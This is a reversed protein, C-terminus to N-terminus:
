HVPIRISPEFPKKNISVILLGNVFHTDVERLNLRYLMKSLDMTRKFHGFTRESIFKREEYEQQQQPSSLQQSGADIQKEMPQEVNSQDNIPQGVNSEKTSENPIIEKPEQQQKSWDKNESSLVSTPESSKIVDSDFKKEEPRDQKLQEEGKNPEFLQATQAVSTSPKKEDKHLSSLEQQQQPQRQQETGSKEEFQKRTDSVSPGSTVDSTPQNINSVGEQQSWQQSSPENINSRQQEQQHPLTSSQQENNSPRQQASQSAPQNINSEGLNSRQQELSQSSSQDVNSEGSNSRPQEGSQWSPQNVNPSEGMNSRQEVSQPSPKDINPKNIDSRQQEVSQSPQNVNSEGFNFTQHESPHSIDSSDSQQSTENINSSSSSTQPQQFPQQQQQQQLEPQQTQPQQHQNSLQQSPNQGISPDNVNSSQQTEIPPVNRQESFTQNADSQSSLNDQNLGCSKINSEPVNGVQSQHQKFSPDQNSISEVNPDSGHKWQEGEGGGSLETVKPRSSDAGFETNQNKEDYSWSQNPRRYAYRKKDGKIILKSEAIEISIDEKLVGALECEFILCDKTETIDIEPLFDVNRSSSDMPIASQSGMSYGIPVNLGQSLLFDMITAM